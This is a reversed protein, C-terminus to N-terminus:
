DIRDEDIGNESEVGEVMERQQRAVKLGDSEERNMEDICANCNGCRELDEPKEEEDGEWLWFSCDGSFVRKLEALGEIDLTAPEITFTVTPMKMPEIDVSLACLGELKQGNLLVVVDHPDPQHPGGSMGMQIKVDGTM